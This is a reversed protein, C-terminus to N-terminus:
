QVTKVAVTLAYTRSNPAAGVVFEDRTSFQVTYNDSLRIALSPALRYSRRAGPGTSVVEDVILSPVFWEVPAVFFQTYGAVYQADAVPDESVVRSILDHEALIGWRGFGLRAFAGVSKRDAARSTSMRASMGLVAHRKWVDVGGVVGAGRQRRSPDEDFGPGFVYPTLQLRDTWLFAKVQTPFATGLPDHQRETFRQPDPLGLGTPLSDRGIALEVGRRPRYALLVKGIVANATRGASAPVRSLTPTDLGAEYSLRTHASMNLVGRQLMRFNTLRLVDPDRSSSRLSGGTVFRVDYFFRGQGEDPRVERSFLSQATDIGKGYSTLLGGGQPSVHCTACDTYGLRIMTPLAFAGSSPVLTSLALLVLVRPRNM